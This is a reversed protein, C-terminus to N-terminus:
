VVRLRFLKFGNRDFRMIPIVELLLAYSFYLSTLNALYTVLTYFLKCDINTEEPDHHGVKDIITLARALFPSQEIKLKEVFDKESILNMGTPEIKRFVSYFVTVDDKHIQLNRCLKDFKKIDTKELGAEAPNFELLKLSSGVCGM